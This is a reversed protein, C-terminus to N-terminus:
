AIAADSNMLVRWVFGGAVTTAILAVSQGAASLTITTAGAVNLGGAVTVVRDGVAYVSCTMVIIQGAFTPIAMTNTEAAGTQIDVSANGTVPIANGNGPDAVVPILPTTGLVSSAGLAGVVSFAGTHTTTAAIACVGAGTMSFLTAASNNQLQFDTAGTDTGCRLITSGLVDTNDLVWDNSASVYTATVDSGTGWNLAVDDAIIYTTSVGGPITVTGDGEVTFLVAGSDNQVEFSTAATDTGLRFITSGTAIPNDCVIDTDSEIAFVPSSAVDVEEDSIWLYLKRLAHGEPNRYRDPGKAM